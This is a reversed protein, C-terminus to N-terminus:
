KQNKKISKPRGRYTKTVKRKTNNTVKRKTSYKISKGGHFWSYFHAASAADDEDETLTADTDTAADHSVIAGDSALVDPASGADHYVIAGDSAFVDPASGVARMAPAADDWWGDSAFVTEEPYLDLERSFIQASSEPAYGVVSRMEPAAAAAAKALM